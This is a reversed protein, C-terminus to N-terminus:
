SAVLSSARSQDLQIPEPMALPSTFGLEGRGFMNYMQQLDYDVGPDVVRVASPNDIGAEAALLTAIDRQTRRFDLVGNTIFLDFETTGEAESIRSTASAGYGGGCIASLSSCLEDSHMITDVSVVYHTKSAGNKFTIKLTM